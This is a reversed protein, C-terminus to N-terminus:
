ATIREDHAQSHQQSAAPVTNTATFRRARASQRVSSRAPLWQAILRRAEAPALTGSALLARPAHLFKNTLGSALAELVAEAPEGRLLLRRAHELEAARLLEARQGLTKLLPVAQRAAMWHMFSDVHSEIITDAQALAARRSEIGSQVVQGLDDITYLIVESLHGVEPEIDRPVALDFMVLPRRRRSRTAREVMAVDIVPLHSSTGSVVIDFEHLREPLESLPMTEGHLRAALREAHELTRNAIVIDCPHRSAFHVAALEIVEGAGVFLVRARRSDNFVNQALRVAAAAISVAGAGIETRSRVEKAVAFSRQFLQHLHSGLAGAEEADRAAQKMQGLIQPEGLMMSDLGGAVRFAHRVAHRQALAYLKPRLESAALASRGALWDVLAGHAAEPEHMVCYLETRCCTSLIACEAVEAALQRRLDALAEPVHEASFAVRERLALPANTHNLSITLLQM